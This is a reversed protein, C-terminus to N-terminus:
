KSKPLFKFQRAKALARTLAETPMPPEGIIEGIKAAQEPTVPRQEPCGHSLAEEILNPETNDPQQLRQVAELPM